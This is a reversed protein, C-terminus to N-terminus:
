NRNYLMADQKQGNRLQVMEKKRALALPPGLLDTDKGGRGYGSWVHRINRQTTEGRM